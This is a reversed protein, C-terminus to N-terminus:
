PQSGTTADKALVLGISAVLATVASYLDGIALLNGTQIINLLVEAVHSVQPLFGIIFALVGAITTKYNALGSLLSDM